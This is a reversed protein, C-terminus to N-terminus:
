SSYDSDKFLTTNTGFRRTLGGQVLNPPLNRYATGENLMALNDNMVRSLSSNNLETQRASANRNRSAQNNLDLGLARALSSTEGCIYRDFSFTATAKLVQSNQYSVRTSNLSLPFMGVFRYELFQSHNREFKVM